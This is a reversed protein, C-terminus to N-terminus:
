EFVRLTSEMIDTAVQHGAPGRWDIQGINRQAALNNVAALIYNRIQGLASMARTEGKKQVLREFFVRCFVEYLYFGFFDQLLSEIRVVQAQMLRELEQLTEAEEFYEKELAALAMRADVDDITSAEGSLRDLLCALIEGVPRGVLDSWGSSRLAGELGLRGVDGLFGGLRAATALANGGKAVSGGGGAGGRSIAGAGGNHRVFRGVLEVAKQPAL